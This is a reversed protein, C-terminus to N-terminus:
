NLEKWHYGGATKNKDRCAKLIGSDSKNIFKAAATRSNFIEGTEVCIVKVSNGIKLKNKNWFSVAEKKNELLCWHYGGATKNYEKCAKRINISGRINNERAAQEASNYEKNQEFCFVPKGNRSSIINNSWYKIAQEKDELYCWHKNAFTKKWDKCILNLNGKKGSGNNKYADQLSNYVKKDEFCYVAINKTNNTGNKNWFKIAQEKDELYCWHMKKATRLSNKCAQIIQSPIKINNEKAACFISNYIKNQELCFVNRHKGVKLVSNNWFEIAQEKDELYCWHMKAATKKWKKCTQSIVSPSVGFLFAALTASNYEKNQEFCFVKKSLFAYHREKVEKYLKPNYQKDTNSLMFYFASTMEKNNYIKYLLFHAKYHDELSLKILNTEKFKWNPFMSKPLIHHYEFNDKPPNDKANKLLNIYEERYNSNLFETKLESLIKSKRSM